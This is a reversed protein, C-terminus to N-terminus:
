LDQCVCYESIAELLVYGKSISLDLAELLKEVLITLLSLHSLDYSQVDVANQPFVVLLDM